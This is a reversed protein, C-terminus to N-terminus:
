GARPPGIGSLKHNLEAMERDLEAARQVQENSRKQPLEGLERAIEAVRREAAAREVPNLIWM